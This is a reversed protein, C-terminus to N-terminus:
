CMIVRENHLVDNFVHIHYYKSCLTGMTYGSRIWEM